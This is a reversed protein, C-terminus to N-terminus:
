MKPAADTEVDVVHSQVCVGDMTTTTLDDGSCPSDEVGGHESGLGHKELGDIEDLDLTGLSSNSTLIQFNKYNVFISHKCSKKQFGSERIFHEM